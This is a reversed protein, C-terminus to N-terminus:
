SIQIEYGIETVLRKLGVWYNDRLRNLKKSIIRIMIGFDWVIKLTNGLEKSNNLRM